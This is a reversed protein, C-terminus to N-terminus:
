QNEKILQKIKIIALDIGGIEIVDDLVKLAYDLAKQLREKDEVECKYNGHWVEFEERMAENEEELRKAMNAKAILNEIYCYHKVYDHCRHKWGLDGTGLKPSEFVYYKSDDGKTLATIEDLADNIDMCIGLSVPIEGDNIEKLLDVDVDLAKRTREM